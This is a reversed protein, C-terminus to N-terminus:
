IWVLSCLSEGTSAKEWLKKAELVPLWDRDRPNDENVDELMEILLERQRLVEEEALPGEIDVEGDSTAGDLQSPKLSAHPDWLGLPGAALEETEEESPSVGGAEGGVEEEIKHASQLNQLLNERKKKPLHGRRRKPQEM